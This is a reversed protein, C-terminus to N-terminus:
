DLFQPSHPIRGRDFFTPPRRGRADGGGSAQIASRFPRPDALNILQRSSIRIVYNRQGTIGHKLSARFFKTSADFRLAMKARLALVPSFMTVLAALVDILWLVQVCVCVCVCM